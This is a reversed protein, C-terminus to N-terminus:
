PKGRGTSRRALLLVGAAFFLAGFAAYGLWVRRALPNVPLYVDWIRVVGVLGLVAATLLAILAVLGYVIARLVRLAPLTARARLWGVGGVVRDGLQDAWETLQPSVARSGTAPANGPSTGTVAADAPSPSTAAPPLLPAGTEPM